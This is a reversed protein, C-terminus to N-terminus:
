YFDINTYEEREYIANKTRTTRNSVRLVYYHVQYGPFCFCFHSIVMCCLIFVHLGTFPEAYVVFSVCTFVLITDTRQDYNTGRDTKLFTEYVPQVGQFMHQPDVDTTV